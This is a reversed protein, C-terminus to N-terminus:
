YKLNQFEEELLARCGNGFNAYVQVRDNKGGVWFEKIENFLEFIRIIVFVREKEEERERGM